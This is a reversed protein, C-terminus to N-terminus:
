KHRNGKKDDPSAPDPTPSPSPAAEPQKGPLKAGASGAPQSDMTINGDFAAGENVVFSPCTINGIVVATPKLVVKARATIDGTVKGMVTVVEALIEANVEGTQGVTVTNDINIKGKVKGEVTLEERGRIEGEIEVGRGITSHGGSRRPEETTVPRVPRNMINEEPQSEGNRDKKFLAM